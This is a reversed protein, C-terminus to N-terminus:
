KVIMERLLNILFFEKVEGGSSPRTLIPIHNVAPLSLWLLSLTFLRRHMLTMHVCSTDTNLLMLM